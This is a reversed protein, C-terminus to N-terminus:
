GPKKSGASTSRWVRSSRSWGRWRSAGSAAHIGVLEGSCHDVAVFVYARGEPFLVLRRAEKAKEIAGRSLGTHAAYRRESLGQM